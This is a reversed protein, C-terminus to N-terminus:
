ECSVSLTLGVSPFFQKCGLEKTSAVKQEPAPPAAKAVEASTAISSNETEVAAATEPKAEPTEEVKAVAEVKAVPEVKAVSEIKAPKARAVSINPKVHRRVSRYSRKRYARFKAGGCGAKHLTSFGSPAGLRVNFGAEAQSGFLATVALIAAGLAILTKNM